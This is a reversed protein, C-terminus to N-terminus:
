EGCTSGGDLLRGLREKLRRRAHWLNAKVRDATTGLVKAIEALSLDGDVKLTLVARQGPPLCSVEAELLGALERAYALATPDFSVPAPPEPQEELLLERRGRKRLRDRWLNVLIRRFWPEASAPERLKEGCARVSANSVACVLRCPMWPM